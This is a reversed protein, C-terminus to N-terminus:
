NEMRYRSADYLSNAFDEGMLSTLPAHADALKALDVKVKQATGPDEGHKFM